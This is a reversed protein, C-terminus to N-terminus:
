QVECLSGKLSAKGRGKGLFVHRGKLLQVMTDIQHERLQQPLAYNPAIKMSWKLVLSLHESM